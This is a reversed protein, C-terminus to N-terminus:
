DPALALLRQAAEELTVGISVIGEDHGAMVALGFDAFESDRYLREFERAMAPTGYPVDPDTAPVETLLQQWLIKSHVHVVANITDSLEYIAAHTLSESSAQLPGVSSVRNADIDYATVLAYHDAMTEALHGTQTASVIFQGRQGARMSLNGFGIGLEEYHGILGAEHLPRRWHDLEATIAADPAPGETWDSDFKIYGEDITM